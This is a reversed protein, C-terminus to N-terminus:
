KLNQIERRLRRKDRDFSYNGIEYKEEMREIWEVSYKLNYLQIDRSVGVLNADFLYHQICDRKASIFSEIHRQGIQNQQLIYIIWDYNMVTAALMKERDSIHSPLRRPYTVDIDINTDLAYRYPEILDNIKHKLICSFLRLPISIHLPKWAIYGDIWRKDAYFISAISRDLSQKPIQTNQQEQTKLYQHGYVKLKNIKGQLKQYDMDVAINELYEWDLYYWWASKRQNDIKLFNWLM